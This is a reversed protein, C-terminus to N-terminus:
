AVIWARGPRPMLAPATFAEAFAAVLCALGVAACATRWRSATADHARSPTLAFVLLAAALAAVWAPAPDAGTAWAAGPLRAGAETIARFAWALAECAAFALQATGPLALEWVAALWAAALLLGSVP